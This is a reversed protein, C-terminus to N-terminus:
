FPLWNDSSSTETRAPPTPQFIAPSMDEPCQRGDGDERASHTSIVFYDNGFTERGDGDERASHTSILITTDPILLEAPRRGRPRLPNFDWLLLACSLLINDGDERASHTSIGNYQRDYLWQSTETRAPPTPQFGPSLLCYVLNRRRRGRPRLPNFYTPMDVTISQGHRRGRPRLPNFNM